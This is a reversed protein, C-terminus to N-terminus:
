RRRNTILRLQDAGERNVAYRCTVKEGHHWGPCTIDKLTRDAVAAKRRTLTELGDIRSGELAEHHAGSEWFMPKDPFATAWMRCYLGSAASSLPTVQSATCLVCCVESATAPRTDGGTTVRELIEAAHSRYVFETSMLECSPMLLSFSHYLTDAMGPNRIIACEIEEAAWEMVELLIETDNKTAQLIASISQDKHCDDEENPM